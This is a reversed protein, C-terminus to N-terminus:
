GSVSRGVEPAAVVKKPQSMVSIAPSAVIAVLDPRSPVRPGFGERVLDVARNKDDCDAIAEKLKLELEYLKAVVKRRQDSTMRNINEDGCPPIKVDDSLFVQMKEVVRLLREDPRSPLFPGRIMEYAKWVCAMINISTLGEDDLRHHDRWAKMYRCDQRLRENYLSVADVFWDYIKRPDSEVWDKERHALLVADSPLVEWNDIKADFSATKQTNRAEVLLRVDHDPVAYLPVDVHGDNSIELRVCTAKSTVLTWGEEDALKGLVTEVFTFFAAAAKSPKEGRVFSLPLYCGDDLDKQQDPPFAPHNLTKYAFSGQTFFRPRVTVGFYGSSTEEFADRLRDRIKKRANRLPTEDAEIKSLFHEDVTNHLLKSVNAM